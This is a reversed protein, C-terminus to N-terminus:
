AAIGSRRSVISRRMPRMSRRSSRISAQNDEARNVPVAQGAKTHTRPACGCPRRGSAPAGDGDRSAATPRNQRKRLTKRSMITYITYAQWSPFHERPGLRATRRGSRERNEPLLDARLAGSRAAADRCLRAKALRVRRKGQQEGALVPSVPPAGNRFSPEAAKSSPRGGAPHHMPNFKRVAASTILITISNVPIIIIM